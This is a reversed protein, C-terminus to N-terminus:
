QQAAGQRHKKRFVQPTMGNWHKFARHFAAPESYGLLYGVEGISFRSDSLYAGAAEKRSKELLEQYSFGADSLRRQLSRVSMSLARAVTHIRTDGNAIQSQLLQRLENVFGDAPALRAGIDNAHRELVAQLIPDRRRLPLQWVEPFLAFGNWAAKTHVPCGVIREIEAADDPQHAFSVFAVELRGETEERLHLVAITVGFEVSFANPPSDYLIRIPNEDELLRLVYPAEVLRLYRALQRLGAGVNASTLVLYDVLPFAGLPTEAALRVGLNGIPKRETAAALLAGTAQCTIHGDPDDLDSRRVGADALLSGTDYGLRGLADVFVRVLAAPNVQAVGRDAGSRTARKTVEKARETM